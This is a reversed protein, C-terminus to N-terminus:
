TESAPTPPPSVRFPITRRHQGDVAIEVSYYGDHNVAGNRLDFALAVYVPEHIATDSSEAQFGGKIEAVGGGDADQIRVELEHPRGQDMRHLEVVVALCVGLPAPYDTRSLRTVGGGVVHLLGDRVQAFDALFASAVDM